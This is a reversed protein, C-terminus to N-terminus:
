EGERLEQDHYCKRDLDDYRQELEKYRKEWDSTIAYLETIAANQTLITESLEKVQNQKREWAAKTVVMKDPSMLNAIEAELQAIKVNKPNLPSQDAAALAVKVGMRGVQEPDYGAQRLVLDIEVESAPEEDSLIPTGIFIAIMKDAEVRDSEKESEPLQAYDTSAQRAWRDAWVEPITITGDANKTSKGWMYRIWGSWAEHAYAALPEKISSIIASTM